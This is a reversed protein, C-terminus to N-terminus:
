SRYDDAIAGQEFLFHNWLLQQSDYFYPVHPLATFQSMFFRAFAHKMSRSWYAGFLWILFWSELADWCSFEQWGVWDVGDGWGVGLLASKAHDWTWRKNCRNIWQGDWCGIESRKLRACFGGSPSGQWGMVADMPKGEIFKHRAVLLPELYMDYSWLNLKFWLFM